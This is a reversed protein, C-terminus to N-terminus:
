NLELWPHSNIIKEKIRKTKEETEHTMVHLMSEGHVYYIGLIQPVMIGFSNNEVVRCWLEYDEWGTNYSSDYGNLSIIKKRNILAMADIYNCKKFDEINWSINNKIDSYLKNKKQLISYSFFADSNQDLVRKLKSLCSPFIENDADMIFVYKTKSFSIATNRTIPLRQNTKHRLVYIENFRKGKNKMWNVVIKPSSDMSCDDVIIINLSKETQSYISELARIIFKEYNYLSILVTIDPLKNKGKKEYLIDVEGITMQNDELFTKM